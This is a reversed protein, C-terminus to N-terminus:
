TNRVVKKVAEISTYIDAENIGYHTVFRVETPLERECRVNFLELKQIFQYSSIGLKDLHMYVMNTQVREIDIYLRDIKYLGEALRRANEHDEKLSDIMKEIAVIGAAALFGAQRM